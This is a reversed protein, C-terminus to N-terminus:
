DGHLGWRVDERVAAELREVRKKEILNRVADRVAESRNSYWGQKILIDLELLLRKTLRSPVTEM